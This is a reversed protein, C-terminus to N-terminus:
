HGGWVNFIFGHSNSHAGSINLDIVHDLSTNKVATVQIHSGTSDSVIKHQSVGTLPSANGPNRWAVYGFEDEQAWGHIHYFFMGGATAMGLDDLVHVSRTFTANNGHFFRKFRMMYHQDSAGNYDPMSFISSGGTVGSPGYIFNAM